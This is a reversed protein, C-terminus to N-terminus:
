VGAKRASFPIEQDEGEPIGPYWVIEDAPLQWPLNCITIEKESIGMSEMQNSGTATGKSLENYNGM